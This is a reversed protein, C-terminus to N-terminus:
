KSWAHDARDQGTDTEPQYKPRRNVLDFGDGVDSVKYGGFLAEIPNLLPLPQGNKQRLGSVIDNM